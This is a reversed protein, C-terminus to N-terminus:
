SVTVTFTVHAGGPITATATQTGSASGVIWTASLQGGVNTTVSTPTVFGGSSASWNVVVGAVGNGFADQVSVVLSHALTAGPSGAQGSGSVAIIRTAPAPTVNGTWVLTTGSSAIGGASIAPGALILVPCSAGIFMTPGTYTVTATGQADTAADFSLAPTASPTAGFGGPLGGFNACPPGGYSAEFTIPWQFPQGNGTLLRATLSMQQGLGITLPGTTSPSIGVAHLNLAQVHLTGQVAPFAPLTVTVSQVGENHGVSWGNLTADAGGAPSTEAHDLSGGGAVSWDLTLQNYVNGAADMPVARVLYRIGPTVPVNDEFPGVNTNPFGTGPDQFVIRTPAGTGGSPTGGGGPTGTQGPAPSTTTDGGCAWIGLLAALAATRLRLM